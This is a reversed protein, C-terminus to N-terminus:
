YIISVTVVDSYNGVRVNQRAPIRAYVTYSRAFANGIPLVDIVSAGGGSDDGWLATRAANKYLNYNLIAAGNHLTRAGVNGSSGASLGIMFTSPTITRGTCAMGITGASDTPNPIQPNYISFAIASTSITCACSSNPACAAWVPQAGVAAMGCAIVGMANSAGGRVKM